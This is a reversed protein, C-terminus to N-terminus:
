NMLKDVVPNASMNHWIFTAMFLESCLLDSVSQVEDILNCNMLKKM